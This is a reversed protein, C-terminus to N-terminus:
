HVAFIFGLPYQAEFCGPDYGAGFPRRNGLLDAGVPAAVAARPIADIAPSRRPLRYDGAEADALLRAAEAEVTGAGLGVDEVDVANMTLLAYCAADEARAEEAAVYADFTSSDGLAYVSSYSAPFSAWVAYRDAANALSAYIVRNGAVVCNEFRGGSLVNVGGCFSMANGAVTSFRLVANGEVWVAAHSMGNPKKEWLDGTVPALATKGTYNRAILCHEARAYNALHLGVGNGRGGAAYCSTSFNNTIVCHTVLAGPGIAYVGTGRSYKGRNSGYGSWDSGQHCGRVIVNSLTGQAATPTYNEGFRTGGFGIFVGAGVDYVENRAGNEVTLSHVICEPGGNIQFCRDCSTQHVIVDEPHGTSGHVAIDTRVVIQTDISYTGPLIVVEDGDAACDVAPAISAAATALTSYPAAPTANGEVVYHVPRSGIAIPALSATVGAVANSVAVSPAYTGPSSLTYNCSSSTGVEDVVGDGDYDWYYTLQGTGLGTCTATLRGTAPAYDYQSDAARVINAVLLEPNHECAGMAVTAAGGATTTRTRGALDRETLAYASTDGSTRCPSYDSPYLLGDGAEVLCPAARICATEADAEADDELCCNKAVAFADVSASDTTNGRIVSNYACVNGGGAGAERPSHINGTVTCNYLNLPADGSTQAATCSIPALDAAKTGVIGTVLCNYYDGTGQLRGRFVCSEARCTQLISPTKSLPVTKVATAGDVVCRLMNLNCARSMNGVYVSVSSSNNTFACDVVLGTHTRDSVIVYTTGNATAVCNTAVLGNNNVNFLHTGANGTFLVGDLRSCNSATTKVLCNSVVGGYLSGQYIASGDNARGGRIVFRYHNGSRICGGYSDSVCDAFVCDYSTGGNYGGGMYSAHCSTVLCNRITGGYAGGGYANVSTIVSVASCNSVVCGTLDASYAGGGDSSAACGTILCNELIGSYAGGGQNEHTTGTAVTAGNELRFGILKPNYHDYFVACRVAGEGCRTKETGDYATAYAGRIVPGNEWSGSRGRITLKKTVNIRTDGVSTSVVGSDCVFGDEVWITDGAVAANIAQQLNTYADHSIGDDTTVYTGWLDDPGNVAHIVNTSVYLEGAFVSACVSMSALLFLKKM